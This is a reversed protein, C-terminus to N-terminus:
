KKLALAVARRRLFYVAAVLPSLSDNRRRFHSVTGSIGSIGNRFKGFNTLAQLKLGLFADRVALEHSKGKTRAELKRITLDIAPQLHRSIIAFVIKM